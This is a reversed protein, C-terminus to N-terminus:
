APAARVPDFDAGQSSGQVALASSAAGSVVGLRAVLAHQARLDEAGWVGLAKAIESPKASGEATARVRVRLLPGSAWDLVACLKLAAEDAIVSIELVLARVDIRKDGRVIEASPKALLAAALRELRAADHSIGDPAPQILIDVADILKGLGLDPKAPAVPALPHGALRVIACAEIEIGPPCVAALRERVEDAALETRAAGGIEWSRLGPVVHELDVDMLEGLSPIGLGLAPGFSIRPKPSFGRTVALPLDARRFSRALLRILDLHGLFAARGIKAFRIRYTSYPAGAGVHGALRVREARETERDLVPSKGGVEAPSGGGRESVDVLDAGDIV